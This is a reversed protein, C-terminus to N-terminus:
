NHLRPDILVDDIRYAAPKTGPKVRFRVAIKRWGAVKGLRQPELKVDDSLTWGDKAKLRFKRAQRVNNRSLGPYIVDVALEADTDAALQSAFFRFSPYELDVCMEPSTASAGPALLLSSTQSEGTIGANSGSTTLAAGGALQWGPLAPDEFDGSPALFYHRRDKFGTLPNFLAPASCSAEGAVSTGPDVTEALVVGEDAQIQSDEAVPPDTTTSQALAAPSILLLM